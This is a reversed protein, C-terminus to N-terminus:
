EITISTTIENIAQRNSRYTQKTTFFQVSYMTRNVLAVCLQIHVDLTSNRVDSIRADLVTADQGSPLTVSKEKTFTVDDFNKEFLKKYISIFLDITAIESVQRTWDIDIQAIGWSPSIGVGDGSTDKRVSWGAPYKVSFGLKLNSYTALQSLDITISRSGTATGTATDTAMQTVMQTATQTAQTVTETPTATTTTTTTPATTMTPTATPTTTTTPTQTVTQKATHTMTTGVTTPTPTATPSPTPIPQTEDDSNEGILTSCGTFLPLGAAIGALLQRRQM